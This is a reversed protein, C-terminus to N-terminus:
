RKNLDLLGQMQFDVLRDLQRVVALVAKSFIVTNPSQHKISSIEIGLGLFDAISTCKLNLFSLHDVSVGLAEDSVTSVNRRRLSLESLTQNIAKTAERIEVRHTLFNLTTRKIDDGVSKLAEIEIDGPSAYSIKRIELGHVAPILQEMASFLNVRSYGGTWPSRLFRGVKESLNTIFQPRTAYLFAYVNGYAKSFKDLDSIFWRGDIPVQYSEPQLTENLSIDTTLTEDFFSESSPMYHNIVSIDSISRLTRHSERSTKGSEGLVSKRTDDLILHRNAKTVLSLLSEGKNLYAVLDKRVVPFIIWRNTQKEDTDAWLYLWNTRRDSYLSLLPGDFFILDCIHSHKELMRIEIRNGDIKKM